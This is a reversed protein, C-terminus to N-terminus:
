RGNVKGKGEEPGSGTGGVRDENKGWCPGLSKLFSKTVELQEVAQERLGTGEM